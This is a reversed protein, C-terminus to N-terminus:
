VLALQNERFHMSACCNVPCRPTFCQKPAPLSLLVLNLCVRFILYSRLIVLTLTPSHSLSPYAEDDLPFCGPDGALAGLHSSLSLPPLPAFVALLNAQVLLPPLPPLPFTLKKLAFMPSFGISQFDSQPPEEALNM